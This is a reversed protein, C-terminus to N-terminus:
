FAVPRPELHMSTVAIRPAAPNLGQSVGDGREPRHRAAQTAPLLSPGGPQRTPWCGLPLHPARAMSAPPLGTPRTRHHPVSRDLDTNQGRSLASRARAACGPQLCHVRCLLCYCAAPSEGRLQSIDNRQLPFFPAPFKIRLLGFLPPFLDDKVM